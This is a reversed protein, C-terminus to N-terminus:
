VFFDVPPFTVTISYTVQPPKNKFTALEPHIEYSNQHYAVTNKLVSRTVCKHTLLSFMLPESLPKDGPRRWAM